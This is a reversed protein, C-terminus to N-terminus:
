SPESSFTRGSTKDSGVMLISPTHNALSSQTREAVRGRGAAPGLVLRGVSAPEPGDLRSACPIDSLISTTSESLAFATAAGACLRLIQAVRKATSVWAAAAGIRCPPHPYTSRGQKRPKPNTQAYPRHGPDRGSRSIPQRRQNDESVVQRGPGPEKPVWRRQRDSRGPRHLLGPNALDSPWRTRAM